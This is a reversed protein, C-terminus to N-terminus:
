KKTFLYFSRKGVNFVAGILFFFLPVHFSYLYKQLMGGRLTHGLVIAFIGVSKAIDVWITREKITNKEM